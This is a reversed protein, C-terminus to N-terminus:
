LHGDARERYWITINAENNVDDPRTVRLVSSVPWYFPRFDRQDGEGVALDMRQQVTGDGDQFELQVGGAGGAPVAGLINYVRIHNGAGPALLSAAGSFTSHWFSFGGSIETLLNHLSVRAM